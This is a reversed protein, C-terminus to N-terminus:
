ENAEGVGRPEVSQEVEKEATHPEDRDAEIDDSGVTPAEFDGVVGHDDFRFAEPGWGFRRSLDIAEEASLHYVWISRGLVSVPEFLQFFAFQDQPCWAVNGEANVATSPKGCVLNASLAYWGSDPQWPETLDANRSRNGTVTPSGPPFTFEVDVLQPALSGFYVFEPRSVDSNRELWDKWRYLDQGWDLSSDVLHRHGRSPGGALENYYSLHFPFQSLTSIVTAALCGVVIRKGLWHNQYIWGSTTGVWVFLFPFVPLFYRFHHSLGDLSSIAYTLVVAPLLVLLTDRWTMGTRPFMWLATGILALTGLPVKVTMGYLYYYWWGRDGWEGRLFSRSGSVMVSHADRFGRLYNAPLPIPIEALYGPVRLESEPSRGLRSDPFPRLTEEFAYGLNVFVVAVTMLLLLQGGSGALKIWGQRRGVTWVLWMLPLLGFWLLWVMKALLAMGVAVGAIVAGSTREEGLWQWVAYAALIGLATCPIDGTVIHGYGLVNPCFCWLMLAVRGAVPGSLERAWGYCALGGILCLPICALRGRRLARLYREPPDTLSRTEVYGGAASFRFDPDLIATPTAAVIDVLPPNGLNVDFRGTHWMYLGASLHNAEDRTPADWLASVILLVLQIGLLAPLWPDRRRARGAAVSSTTGLGSMGSSMKPAHHSADAIEPIPDDQSTTSQTEM